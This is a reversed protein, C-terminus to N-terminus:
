SNKAVGKWLSGDDSGEEQAQSIEKRPARGGGGAPIILKFLEPDPNSHRNRSLLVQAPESWGVGCNCVAVIAGKTTAKSVRREEETHGVSELFLGWSFPSLEM